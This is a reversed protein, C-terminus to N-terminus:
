IRKQPTSYGTGHRDIIQYSDDKVNTHSVKIQSKMGDIKEATIYEAIYNHGNLSYIFTGDPNRDYISNSSLPISSTTNMRINM